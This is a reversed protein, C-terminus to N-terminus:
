FIKLITISYDFGAYNFQQGGLVFIEFQWLRQLAYKCSTTSKQFGYNTRLWFVLWTVISRKASPSEFNEWYTTSYSKSHLVGVFISIRYFYDFRLVIFCCKYHEKTSSAPHWHRNVCISLHRQKPRIKLEFLHWRKSHRYSIENLFVFFYVQATNVTIRDNPTGRDKGGFKRILKEALDISDKM